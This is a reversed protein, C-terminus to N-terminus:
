AQLAPRYNEDGWHRNNQRAGQGSVTGYHRALLNLATRLMLKASRPPWRRESEVTQLGKLHFCVDTVVGALEPGVCELAARVRARADIANDSLDGAAGRAGKSPKAVLSADWNATIRQGFNGITFDLRLREGAAFAAQDIWRQGGSQKMMHLRALPSENWNMKVDHRGSEHSITLSSIERHQAQYVEVEDVASVAKARLLHKRGVENIECHTNSLEILGCHHTSQISELKSLMKKGGLAVLLMQGMAPADFKCLQARGNEHLFSLLRLRDNPKHKTM